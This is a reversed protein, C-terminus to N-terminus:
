EASLDVINAIPANNMVSNIGKTRGSETTYMESTGIVQGNKAKLVFYFQGNQGLQKEFQNEDKSNERVSDIVNRINDKAPYGESTLIVEGNRAKLSFQFEGNKRQKIEFKSM